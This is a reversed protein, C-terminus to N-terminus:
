DAFVVLLAGVVLAAVVALFVVLGNSEAVSRFLSRAEKAHDQQEPTETTVEAASM